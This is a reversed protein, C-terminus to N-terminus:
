RVRVVRRSTRFTEGTVVVLYTGPALAAGDLTVNRTAEAALPEDLLAAVRRGLLDYVDVRVRQASAVTVDLATRDAFPDPYPAEVLYPTTLPVHVDIEHSFDDYGDRGVQRLRLTYRGPGLADTRHTYQAGHHGAGRSAVFGIPTWAEGERLQVEFGAMDTESATEWALVLAGGDVRADFAVLVVPLTVQCAAGRAWGMDAFIGCTVSGPAYFQERAHLKPTMLADDSGPTFASEDLHSYSSGPAFFSPAYLVAPSGGLENRAAPGNFYVNGSRLADALEQSPNPFSTTDLLSVAHGDQTYHDYVAPYVAGTSARLGWSGTNDGNSVGFSGVFGLGHGLEHLAVSLFHYKGSPVSVNPDTNFDWDLEGDGNVDLEANFRSSIDASGGTIDYGLLSEALATSYWTDERPAGSFNAVVAPGASGLLSHGLSDWGVTIRIPVDTVLHTAWIQAAAEFATRAEEPMTEAFTIDFSASAAAGRKSAAVVPPVVADVDGPAAILVDSVLARVSEAPVFSQARAAPATWFTVLLGAAAALM